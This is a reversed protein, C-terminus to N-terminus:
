RLTPSNTRGATGRAPPRSDASQRGVGGGGVAAACARATLQLRLRTSLADCYMREATPVPAVRVKSMVLSTLCGDGSREPSRLYIVAGYGKLSADGFGHVEVEQMVDSWTGSVFCRPIQIEKLKQLDEVWSVFEEQFSPPVPEDWELGLKWLEQFLCKAKMLFPALFGLPEFFRAICSLVVRKTTVVGEPIPIGDFLFCDDECSWRVGLVKLEATETTSLSEARARDFVVKSSSACKTLPMGAKALVDRAEVFLKWAGEETDSGGLFDDVFLQEQLQVVTESPPQYQSLHHRITANLLFPSSSIGFLVRGVKMHRRVGNVDWLLRQVDADQEQLEINLFAKSIDAVVAVKNRRFRCLVDCINPTLSPGVHLCDNLSVGSLDRASADFVPRIKTSASAERVVPRHPLYFVPHSGSGEQETVSIEQIVGNGEMEQLARSYGEKLDPNRNLKRNLSDLRQGAVGEGHRLELGQVDSRWPLKVQYRGSEENYQVSKEFDQLVPHNDVCDEKPSIGISELDWFSRITTEHMDSFTLLQSCVPNVEGQVGDSDVVGSLVWGFVSDLLVLGDSVQIGGPKVLSWFVDLGCLIDVSLHDGELFHDALELGALGHLRNSPVCPRSLPSCILPVQVASFSHSTPRSLNAGSVNLKYVGRDEDSKSGGFAAYSVRKSGLFEAGVRRVLSESVFTRQSGSDLVLRASVVGKSGQVNVKATPLVVHSKECQNKRDVCSLSANESVNQRSSTPAGGPNAGSVSRNKSQPQSQFCFLESHKGQCVSCRKSCYKAIHGPMLCLFCLGAQQVRERREPMELDQLQRCSITNHCGSCFSCRSRAPSARPAPRTKAAPAALHLATASPTKYTSKYATKKQHQEQLQDKTEQRVLDRSIEASTIEDDVFKLLAEIDTEKSEINLRSWQVRMSEPLKSLVLPTLFVSFNGEVELAQLSRIHNTLDDQMQRLSHVDESGKSTCLKLSLLGQIHAFVVKERKGFRKKLVECAHAYNASSMVLGAIARKADGLLCSKLYSFKTVVPIDQTDVTAVFTEWFPLWEEIKGSFKPLDLKPLRVNREASASTESSTEQEDGKSLEKAFKVLKMRVKQAREVFEAEVNIDQEVDEEELCLEVASQAERLAVLRTQFEDILLDLESQNDTRKEELLKTAQTVSRTVWGKAAVRLKKAKSLEAMKAEPKM